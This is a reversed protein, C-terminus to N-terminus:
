FFLFLTYRFLHNLTPFYAPINTHVRMSQCPELSKKFIACCSKAFFRENKKHASQPPTDGFGLEAAPTDGFGLEAAPTDGFGLEAAPTGGFGLEAAPTGGFGLEAAGM